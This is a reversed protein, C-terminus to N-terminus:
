RASTPMVPIENYVTGNAEDVVSVNGQWWKEAEDPPALYRVIIM